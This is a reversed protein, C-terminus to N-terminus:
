LFCTQWRHRQSQKVCLTETPKPIMKSSGFDSPSAQCSSVVRPYTSTCIGGNALSRSAFPLLWVLPFSQKGMGTRRQKVAETRREIELELEEDGLAFFTLPQSPQTQKPCKGEEGDVRSGERTQPKPLWNATIPKRRPKTPGPYSQDRSRGEGWARYMPNGLSAKCTTLVGM